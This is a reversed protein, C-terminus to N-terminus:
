VQGNILPGFKGLAQQFAEVFESFFISFRKPQSLRLTSGMFNILARNPKNGGIFKLVSNLSTQFSNDAGGPRPMPAHFVPQKNRPGSVRGQREGDHLTESM